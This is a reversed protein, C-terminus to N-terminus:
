EEGNSMVYVHYSDVYEQAEWEVLLGEQTQTRRIWQPPNGEVPIFVTTLSESWETENMAWKMRVKVRIEVVKEEKTMNDFRTEEVRSITADIKEIEAKKADFAVVEEETLSRTETGVATIMVELEGILQNRKEKLGKLM